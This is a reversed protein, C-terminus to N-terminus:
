SASGVTSVTVVSAYSSYFGFGRSSFFDEVATPPSYFALINGSATGSKGL